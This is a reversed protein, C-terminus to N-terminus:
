EGKEKAAVEKKKGLPLYCVVNSLITTLLLLVAVFIIGKMFPIDMVNSIVMVQELPYEYVTLAFVILSIFDLTTMLIAGWRTQRFLSGILYLIGGVIPLAIVTGSLFKADLGSLVGIYVIGAIISLLAAGVGIYFPISRQKFYSASLNKIKDM